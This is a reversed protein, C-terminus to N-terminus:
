GTLRHLTGTRDLLNGFRKAPDISGNHNISGNHASAPPSASFAHTNVLRVPLGPTATALAPSRGASAYTTTAFHLASDLDARM